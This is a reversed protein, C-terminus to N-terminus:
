LLHLDVGMGFHLDNQSKLYLHHKLRDGNGKVFYSVLSSLLELQTGWLWFIWGLLKAMALMAVLLGLSARNSDNLWLDCHTRKDNERVRDASGKLLIPSGGIVLVGM